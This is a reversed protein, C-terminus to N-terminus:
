GHHAYEAAVQYCHRQDADVVAGEPRLHLGVYVEMLIDDVPDDLTAYETNSTGDDRKKFAIICRRSCFADAPRGCTGHDIRRQSHQSQIKHQCREHDALQLYIISLVVSSKHTPMKTATPMAAKIPSDMFTPLRVEVLM